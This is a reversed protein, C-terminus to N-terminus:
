TTRYRRSLCRTTCATTATSAPMSATVETKKAVPMLLEAFVGYNKRSASMPVYGYFGGIAYDTKGDGRGVTGNGFESM